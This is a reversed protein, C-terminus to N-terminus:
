NTITQYINLPPKWRKMRSNQCYLKGVFLAEDDDSSYNTTIVKNLKRRRRGFSGVNLLHLASRRTQLVYIIDEAQEITMGTIYRRTEYQNRLIIYVNMDYVNMIQLSDAM